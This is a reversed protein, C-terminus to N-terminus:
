LNECWLVSYDEVWGAWEDAVAKGVPVAHDREFEEPSTIEIVEVLQWGGDSGAMVGTIALDRFGLVSPMANMGARLKARTYARYEEVTRGHKLRFLTLAFM